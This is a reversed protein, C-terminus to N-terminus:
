DVFMFENALMLTQALQAVAGLRSTAAESSFEAKSDWTRVQQGNVSQEITINWTFSDHSESAGCDAVFDIPEGARITFEETSM